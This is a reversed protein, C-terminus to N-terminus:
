KILYCRYVPCDRVDIIEKVEWATETDLKEARGCWIVEHSQLGQYSSFGCADCSHTLIKKKAEINSEDFLHATEVSVQEQM